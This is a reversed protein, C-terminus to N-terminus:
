IILDVDSLGFIDRDAKDRERKALVLDTLKTPKKVFYIYFKRGFSAFYADIFADFFKNTVASDNVIGPNFPLKVFDLWSMDEYGTNADEMLMFREVDDDDRSSESESSNSSASLDKMDGFIDLMQEMNEKTFQAMSLETMYKAVIDDHEAAEPEDSQENEFLSDLNPLRNLGILRRRIVDCSWNEFNVDNLIKDELIETELTKSKLWCSVVDDILPSDINENHTDNMGLDRNKIKYSLLTFRRGREQCVLRITDYHTLEIEMNSLNYDVLSDLEQFSVQISKASKFRTMRKNTFDWMMSAPESNVLNWGVDKIFQWLTHNMMKLELENKCIIQTVSSNEAVIEVRFGEMMASYIGKGVYYGSVLKQRVSFYGLVGMRFREILSPIVKNSVFNNGRMKSFKILVSLAIQNKSLNYMQTSLKASELPDSNMSLLEEIISIKDIKFSPCRLCRWLRETLMQLNANTDIMDNMTVYNLKQGKWQCNEVMSRVIDMPSSSVNSPCYSRVTRKKSSISMLFNRLSLHNNFPSSELTSNVDKCLWSFKTRYHEFVLNHAYSTGKIEPMNFWLRRVVDYLSVSQVVSDSKIDLKSSTSRKNIFAGLSSNRYSQLLQLVSDYFNSFPFMWSLDGADEDINLCKEMEFFTKHNYNASM